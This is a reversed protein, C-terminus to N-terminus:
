PGKAVIIIFSEQNLSPSEINLHFCDLVAMVLAACSRACRYVLSGEVPQNRDYGSCPVCSYSYLSSYGSLAARLTCLLVLVQLSVFLVAVTNTTIM